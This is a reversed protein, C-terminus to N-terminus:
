SWWGCWHGIVFGITGVNIPLLGYYLWATFRSVVPHFGGRTLGNPLYWPAGSKVVRLGIFATAFFLFFAVIISSKFNVPGITILGYFVSFVLGVGLGMIHSYNTEEGSKATMAVM